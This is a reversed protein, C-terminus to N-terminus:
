MAEGEDGGAAALAERSAALGEEFTRRRRREVWVDWCVACIDVGLEFPHLPWAGGCGSCRPRPWRTGYGM